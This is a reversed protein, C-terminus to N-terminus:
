QGGALIKQLDMIDSSQKNDQFAITPVPEEKLPITPLSNDTKMTDLNLQNLTEQIKNVENIKEKLRKIEKKLEGNESALSLLSIFSKTFDTPNLMIGTQLKTERFTEMWTIIYRIFVNMDSEMEMKVAEAYLLIQSQIELTPISEVGTFRVHTSRAIEQQAEDLEVDTGKDKNSVVVRGSKDGKPSIKSKPPSAILNKNKDWTKTNDSYCNPCVKVENRQLKRPSWTHTCDGCEARPYKDIAIHKATSKDGKAM